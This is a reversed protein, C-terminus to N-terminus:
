PHQKTPTASHLARQEVPIRIAMLVANLATMLFATRWAGFMMPAAVLEIAIALYNPHPICRYPGRRVPAAGPLVWVRVNWFPGLTLIAWLKLAQAALWIAFWAPWAHPPRADLALVEYALALPYLAHAAVILPFHNRGFERAGRAALQRQHRASIVLELARQVALTALYTFLAAVAPSM